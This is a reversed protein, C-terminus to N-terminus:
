DIDVHWLCKVLAKIYEPVPVDGNAYRFITRDSVGLKKGLEHWTMDLDEKLDTITM